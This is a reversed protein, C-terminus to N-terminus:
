ATHAHIAAFQERAEILRRKWKKQRLRTSMRRCDDSCLEPPRGVTRIFDFPEHCVNCSRTEQM